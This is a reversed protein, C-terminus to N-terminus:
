SLQFGQPEIGVKNLATMSFYASM